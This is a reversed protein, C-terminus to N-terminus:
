WSVKRSGTINDPINQEINHSSTGGEQSDLKGNNGSNNQFSFILYLVTISFIIIFLIILIYKYM